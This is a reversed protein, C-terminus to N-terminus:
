KYIYKKKNNKMNVKKIESYECKNIYIYIYIYMNM